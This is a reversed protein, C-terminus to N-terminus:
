PALPDSSPIRNMLLDLEDPTFLRFIRDDTKAVAVEINNKTANDEMVQRLVDFALNEADVLKMDKSYREQLEKNASESGSGIAAAKYRTFTGSPDTTFLMPGGADIGAVILAVGFPRSMVKKKGESSSFNLAMDSISNVLSEVSIQENYTFIHSQAEVRAHDTLTRADATLGSMACFIHSDIELIKEV